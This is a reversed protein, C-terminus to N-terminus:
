SVHRVAPKRACTIRDCRLEFGAISYVVELLDNQNGTALMRLFTIFMGEDDIFSNIKLPDAHKKYLDTMYEQVRLLTRAPIQALSTTSMTSHTGISETSIPVHAVM